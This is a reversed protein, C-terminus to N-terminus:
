LILEINFENEHEKGKMVFDPKKSLIFKEISNTVIEVEDVLNNNQLAEFRLSEEIFAADGSLRDSILGVTLHDAIKKAAIFLRIHGPHLINFNGTIVIKGQKKM